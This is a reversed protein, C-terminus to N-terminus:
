WQELLVMYGERELRTLKLLLHLYNVLLARQLYLTRYYDSTVYVRISTYCVCVCAGPSIGDVLFLVTALPRNFLNGMVVGPWTAGEQLTCLDFIDVWM